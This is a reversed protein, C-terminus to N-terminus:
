VIGGRAMYLNLYKRYTPPFVLTFFRDNNSQYSKVKYKNEITGNKEITWEECKLLNDDDENTYRRTLYKELWPENDGCNSIQKLRFYDNEEQLYKKEIDTIKQYADYFLDHRTQDHVYIAHKPNEPDDFNFPVIFIGSLYDKPVMYFKESSSM